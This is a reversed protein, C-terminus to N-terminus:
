LGEEMGKAILFGRARETLPYRGVLSWFERSHDPVMLHALEHVIVYDRVWTPYDAIALSIRIMREDISCSGWRSKQITVWAVDAARVGGLYEKGLESARRALAGDSNLRDRKKREAMRTAMHRVWEQEEARSLRAPISVLLADGVIEASITKKRRASRKVEIRLFEDEMGPVDLPLRNVM